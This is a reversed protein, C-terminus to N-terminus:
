WEGSFLLLKAPAGAACRAIEVHWLALSSVHKLLHLSCSKCARVM